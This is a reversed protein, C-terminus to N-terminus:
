ALTSVLVLSIVPNWGSSSPRSRAPGQVAVAPAGDRDVRDGVQVGGLGAGGVQGVPDATMPGDLRQVVDAVGGEGLVGGLDTGAVGGPGHGAEAVEGDADQPPM